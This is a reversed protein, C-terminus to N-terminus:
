PKIQPQVRIHYYGNSFEVPQDPSNTQADFTILAQVGGRVQPGRVEIAASSVVRQDTTVFSRVVCVQNSGLDYDFHNTGTTAVQVVGFDVDGPNVAPAPSHKSCSTLLAALSALIIQPTRTKMFRSHRRVSLLQAVASSVRPM